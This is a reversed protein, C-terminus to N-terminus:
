KPNRTSRGNESSFLTQNKYLPLELAKGKAM